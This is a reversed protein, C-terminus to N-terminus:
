QDHWLCGLPYIVSHLNKHPHSFTAEFNFSLSLYIEGPLVDSRKTDQDFHGRGRASHPLHIPRKAGSEGGGEERELPTMEVM